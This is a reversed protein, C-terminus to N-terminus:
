EAPGISTCIFPALRVISEVEGHKKFFPDYLESQVEALARHASTVSRYKECFTNIVEVTAEGDVPRLTLITNTAGM